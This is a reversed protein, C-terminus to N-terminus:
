LLSGENQQIQFKIEDNEDLSVFVTDGKKLEEAIIMKSLPRKLQNRITGKIPRAGYEPSFGKLAITERDAESIELQMNLKELLQVLEKKLHINFIQSV